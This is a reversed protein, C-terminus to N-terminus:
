KEWQYEILFDVKGWYEEVIIWRISNKKQTMEKTENEDM